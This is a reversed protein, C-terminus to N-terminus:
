KHTNYNYRPIFQDYTVKAKKSSSTSSRHMYNVDSVRKISPPSQRSICSVGGSTGPVYQGVLNTQLELTDYAPTQPTALPNSHLAVLAVVRPSTNPLTKVSKPKKKQKEKRKKRPKSPIKMQSSKGRSKKPQLLALLKQTESINASTAPASRLTFKEIPPLTRTAVFKLIPKEKPLIVPTEIPRLASTAIFNLVRIEKYSRKPQNMCPTTLTGLIRLSPTEEPPFKANANNTPLVVNPRSASIVGETRTSSTRTIYPYGDLTSNDSNVRPSTLDIFERTQGPMPFVALHQNSNSRSTNKLHLYSPQQLPLCSPQYPNYSQLINVPQHTIQHSFQHSPPYRLQHSPPYRIHHTPQYRPQHTPQYMTQNIVPSFQSVPLQGVIQRCANPNFTPYIKLPDHSQTTSPQEGSPIFRHIYPYSTTPCVASLTSSCLPTRILNFPHMLPCVNTNSIPFATSRISTDILPNTRPLTFHRISTQVPPMKYIEADMLINVGRSRDSIVPLQEIKIPKVSKHGHDPAFIASGRANSPKINEKVNLLHDALAQGSLTRSSSSLIQTANRDSNQKCTTNRNRNLRLEQQLTSKVNEIEGLPKTQDIVQQYSKVFDARQQVDPRQHFPLQVVRDRTLQDAVRQLTPNNICRDNSDRSDEKFYPKPRNYNLDRFDRHKRKNRYSPQIRRRTSTTPISTANDPVAQRTVPLLGSSSPLRIDHSLCGVSLTTKDANIQAAQGQLLRNTNTDAKM